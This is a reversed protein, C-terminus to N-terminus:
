APDMSTIPNAGATTTVAGTWATTSDDEKTVTLTGAAVTAKNRILRAANLLSRSAEGSLASFDRKLLDDAFANADGAEMPYFVLLTTKASASKVIVAVTDANMETSTLDLFFIGSSGIETAENTCDAFAGGDKSVESDLSIPSSVLDGDADLLPFTVRFAVNKQPFLKADTSAM